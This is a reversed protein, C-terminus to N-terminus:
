LWVQFFVSQKEGGRLILVEIQWLGRMTFRGDAKYAGNGSSALSFKNLPMPMAPMTLDLTIEADTVPLGNEDSLTVAFSSQSFGAPPYPNLSFTVLLDGSKQAATGDPLELTPDAAIAAGSADVATLGGAPQGQGHMGGGGGMMQARRNAFFMFLVALAALAIVVVIMSGYKKLM